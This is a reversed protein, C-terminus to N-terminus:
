SSSMLHKKAKNLWVMKKSDIESVRRGVTKRGRKKTGKECRTSSQQVLYVRILSQNNKELM